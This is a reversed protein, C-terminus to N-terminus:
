RKPRPCGASIWRDITERSWRVSGGVRFKGPISGEDSLRWVTRESLKLMAAIDAVDYAAPMPPSSRVPAFAAQSM